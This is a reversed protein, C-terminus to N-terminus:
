AARQRAVREGLLASTMVLLGSAPFLYLSATFSVSDSILGVLGPIVIGGVPISLKVIGMATGAIHRYRLGAVAITLPLLPAITLGMMPALILLAGSPLPILYFVISIALALLASVAVFRDPRHGRGLTGVLIRGAALGILFLALM